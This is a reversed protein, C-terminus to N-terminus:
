IKIENSIFTNVEDMVKSMDNGEFYKYLNM